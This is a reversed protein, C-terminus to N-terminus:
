VEFVLKGDNSIPAIWDDYNEFNYPDHYERLTEVTEHSSLNGM